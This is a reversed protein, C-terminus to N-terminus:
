SKGIAKLKANARQIETKASLQDSPDQTSDLMKQARALQERTEQENIQDVSAAGSALVTVENNEVEVFGGMVVLKTTEGKTKVQLVGIGLASVLPAHNSLIGLEGTASPLIVEDATGDWVVKDPAIIKVTLAM